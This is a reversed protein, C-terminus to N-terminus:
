LRWVGVLRLAGAGDRAVHLLTGPMSRTSEVRLIAYQVAPVAACARGASDPVLEQRAGVVTGNADHAAVRFKTPARELEYLLALDTFCLTAGEVKFNDIPNVRRFWFQATKRARGLIAETLYTAARPDSFQASEVAAAIQERTFRAAIKSGWYNDFRDAEIMPFHAFTNSKWKSPLYDDVAYLGVGKLPPDIRGEWPQRHAGLSILSMGMEAFDVDYQYGLYPRQRVRAQAGLSNGFDILFHRVYHVKKDKPDEIWADHSNDEKMDTHSLWAFIAAQGRLDRRLEHPIVDNPDGTRVGLRQTGGLPKGEVFVTALGRMRVDKGRSFKALQSDVRQQDLKRKAGLHKYYAKPDLKLDSPKFHVIHDDPVNFGAAWLLRAVIVDAGTEVEPAHTQDFKLLFKVGRADEVIFGVATGGEKGSKITWPFHADPPDCTGAGCKIEATSVERVGIRNTFWTSDPVEDLANVGLSRRERTLAVSRDAVKYYSDFHYLGRDFPKEEPAKPTDIRDNVRWVPPQNAFRVDGVPSSSGCAGGHVTVLVMVVLSRHM